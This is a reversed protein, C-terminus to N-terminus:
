EVFKWDTIEEPDKGYKDIYNRHWELIENYKKKITDIKSADYKDKVLDLAMMAVHFRSTKNRVYMDFPTTTTGEEIYGNIIFRSTNGRDFLLQKIASPYGVYSIIVPKDKTFYSVFEEESLGKSFEEPTELVMLNSVNVVKFKIQPFDQKLLSSAALVEETTYDGIGVIVIDYEEGKTSAFDWQSIGKDMLNKAEDNNLLLPREDKGAVIINIKNTDELSLKMTYLLSNPDPPLYVNLLDSKKNLMNNIFGPSQHSYGNHEQRWSLSTLLYNLSAVPKRWPIELSVKLFKSYQNMMSDVIPLFAEYSPFLSHRGTLVYGEMLGQCVHESLIEIVRGYPTIFDDYKSHPWLYQRGTVDFVKDLKNSILEDPSFIRFNKKDENLSITDRLYEGVREMGGLRATCRKDLSFTYKNIEPLSLDIRINGGLTHINKGMRKDGKPIIQLLESKIKKNEDLLENVRYSQLWDNVLHLHEKNTKLDPVPVQHSRFSGEIKKGDAEKIGTMGKPTKLIILPWRFPGYVNTARASSQISVIQKYAWNMASFLDANIDTDQALHVDYGLGEFYSIIEANSMTGFLTPNAIKYGNLHLIPLVAGDTVPNIFKNGQWSASLPGTEAEGDGIICAAILNPNDLVAGYAISLSYGLEGGESIVGPLSPDLHSPFGGPWSFEKILYEIGKRDMTLKPFYESLTEELYLNARNAPSGHGPGTVLMTNIDYETILRNLHAYILNIGPSTGWHGLLREKIDNPELDKEAFFNDKLYLQAAALYDTLRVYKEILDLVDNNKERTDRTSEPRIIIEKM